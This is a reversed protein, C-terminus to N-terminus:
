VKRVNASWTPPAGTPFRTAQALLRSSAYWLVCRLLVGGSHGAQRGSLHDSGITCCSCLHATSRACAGRCLHVRVEASCPGHIHSRHTYTHIHTHMCPLMHTHTHVGASAAVDGCGHRHRWKANRRVGKGGPVSSHVATHFALVAAQASWRLGARRATCHGGRSIVGGKRRGCRYPCVCGSEARTRWALLQQSRRHSHAQRQLPMAEGCWHLWAVALQGAITPVAANV